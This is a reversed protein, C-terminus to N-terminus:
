DQDDLVLWERFVCGAESEEKNTPDEIRLLSDIYSTTSEKPNEIYKVKIADNMM